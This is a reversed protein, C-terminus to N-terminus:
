RPQAPAREKLVRRLIKGSPSKPIEDVTEVLRVRKQPAVQDAVWAMLQEHDLEDSAAVVFAKPLEGAEEDPVGIVAVDSVHEHGLILAELEAPAVQFGKYKILEKLRDVIQFYGDSDVVAVDGSHLWGDEDITAATAEPNNLYGSMIQPGRMWLEGREGVETVDEGTEPDVIRCETGPVPPGISGAREGGPEFPIAHTVPSTETLGYGQSVFTDLREALQESLEPGLPAAGCKVHRISSLDRGEVAPHKALALAIPPVIFGRSVRYAEVLDLFQELDFRPMTVITVGERLGLNMIVTMGYIHFFPLAGMFVDDDRVDLQSATQVINAVLNRHTLMVGKSLGTTGSSYPLVALDDAPDIEVQPAQDPDGLLESFPTAGASDVADAEGLVFVEEVGSGAAAETAVDLFPPVTLLFRAGSDNMQHTLEPATYLPNVTSSMGGASAAGHFALAYEPVNPMFIGVVDGKAFGRAALGSACARIGEVLAAYSLERGSPGDILAPKDGREAAHELVFSTIDLDPIEPAPSTSTHIM